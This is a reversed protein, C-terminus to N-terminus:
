KLLEWRICFGDFLGPGYTKEFWEVMEAHSDFGDRQALDRTYKPTLRHGNYHVEGRWFTVRSISRCIADGLKRCQKSRMGTYLQLAGGPRCIVRGDKRPKRITQTKQGLEVAEAFRTQFNLATM